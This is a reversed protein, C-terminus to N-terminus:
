YIKTTRKLMQVAICSKCINLTLNLGKTDDENTRLISDSEQMSAEPTNKLVLAQATYGPCPVNWAAGKLCKNSGSTIQLRTKLNLNTWHLLYYRIFWKSTKLVVSTWSVACFLSVPFRWVKSASFQDKYESIPITMDTEEWM